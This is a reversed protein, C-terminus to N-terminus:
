PKGKPNYEEDEIVSPLKMANRWKGEILLYDKSLKGEEVIGKGSRWSLIMEAVAKACIPGNPLGHGTDQTALFLSRM